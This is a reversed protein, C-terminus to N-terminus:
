SHTLHVDLSCCLLCPSASAAVYILSDFNLSRKPCVSETDGIYKWKYANWGTSVDCYTALEKDNFSLIRPETPEGKSFTIQPCSELVFGM